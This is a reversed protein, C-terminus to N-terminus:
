SEIGKNIIQKIFLQIVLELFMTLFSELMM